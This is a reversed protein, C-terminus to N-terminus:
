KEWQLWYIDQTEEIKQMRIKTNSLKLTQQHIEDAATTVTITAYHHNETKKGGVNLPKFEESGRSFFVTVWEPIRAQLIGHVPPAQPSCHTPCLQAVSHVCKRRYPLATRTGGPAAPKYWISEHINIRCTRTRHQWWTTAQIKGAKAVPGWWAPAQTKWVHGGQKRIVEKDEPVVPPELRTNEREWGWFCGSKRPIRVRKMLLSTNLVLGFVQASPTSM